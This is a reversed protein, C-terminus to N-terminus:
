MTLGKLGTSSRARTFFASRSAPIGSGTLRESYRQSLRNGSHIEPPFDFSPRVNRARLSWCPIGAIAPTLTSRQIGSDQPLDGAM